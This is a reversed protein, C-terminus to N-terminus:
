RKIFILEQIKEPIKKLVIIILIFIAYKPLSADLVCMTANCVKSFSSSMEFAVIKSQKLATSFPSISLATTGNSFEISPVTEVVKSKKYSNSPMLISASATIGM